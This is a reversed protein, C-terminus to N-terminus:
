YSRCTCLRLYHRVFFYQWNSSCEGEVRQCLGELLEYSVLRRSDPSWGRKRYEKLAQQVLFSKTIDRLGNLKFWFTVAMHKSVGFFFM